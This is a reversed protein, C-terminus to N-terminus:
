HTSERRETEPQRTQREKEEGGGGRHRKKEGEWRRGPGEKKWVGLEEQRAEEQFRDVVNHPFELWMSLSAM